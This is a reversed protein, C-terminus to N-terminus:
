GQVKRRESAKKVAAHLRKTTLVVASEGPISITVTESGPATSHSKGSMELDGQSPKFAAWVRTYAYPKMFDHIGGENVHEGSFWFEVANKDRTFLEAGLAEELLKVTRSLAPPSTGLAASAGHISQHEAVGRFAPLWNWLQAVRRFRAM